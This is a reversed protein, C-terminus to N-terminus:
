RGEEKRAQRCDQAPCRACGGHCARGAGSCPSSGNGTRAGGARCGRTCAGGTRARRRASATAGTARSRHCGRRLCGPLARGHSCRVPDQAYESIEVRFAALKYCLTSCTVQVRAAFLVTVPDSLVTLESPEIGSEGGCFRLGTRP